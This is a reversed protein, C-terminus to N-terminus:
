KISEWINKPDIKITDGKRYEAHAEEVKNVFSESLYKENEKIKMKKIGLAKLVAKIKPLEEKETEFIVTAM